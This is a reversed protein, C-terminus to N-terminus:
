VTQYYARKFLVLYKFKTAGSQGLDDGNLNEMYKTHDTTMYVPM